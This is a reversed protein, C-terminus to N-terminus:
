NLLQHPGSQQLCPAAAHAHNDWIQQYVESCSCLIGLGNGTKYINLRGSRMPSRPSCAVLRFHLGCWARLTWGSHYRSLSDRGVQFSRESPGVLDWWYFVESKGKRTVMTLPQNPQSIEACTSLHRLGSQFRVYKHKRLKVLQSHHNTAILCVSFKLLEVWLSWGNRIWVHLGLMKEQNGCADREPSTPTRPLQHRPPCLPPLAWVQVRRTESTLSPPHRLHEDRGLKTAEQSAGWYGTSGCHKCTPLLNRGASNANVATEHRRAAM